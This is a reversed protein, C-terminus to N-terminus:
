PTIFKFMPPEDWMETPIRIFSYIEAISTYLLYKRIVEGYNHIEFSDPIIIM